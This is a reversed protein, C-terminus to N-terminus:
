AISGPVFNLGVKEPRDPLFLNTVKEPSRAIAKGGRM